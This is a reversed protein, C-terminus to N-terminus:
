PSSCIARHPDSLLEYIRSLRRVSDQHCFGAERLANIAENRPKRKLAMSALVREAWFRASRSLPVFETSEAVVQVERTIADSFVCPLGAAQAEVGVMPLGEHLSPLLFTDMASLMLRPVDPRVGAFVFRRTLGLAAVQRAIQDRLPGDGLLLFWIKPNMAALEKAIQVLFLHNKQPAFRGAHGVVIAGAPIGLEARVKLSNADSDFSSLDIGCPLVQFRGDNNWEPGFLAGAALSSCALGHTAYKTIWRVMLRRYLTRLLTGPRDDGTMHSHAIRVPVGAAAAQRLVYGSCYHNHSHIIDYSGRSRLLRRFRPAFQHPRRPHPCIIIQSGLARIEDHYPGSETTYVLFDMKFRERDIHRLVHMLWSEIGGCKLAGVVHLIRLPANAM